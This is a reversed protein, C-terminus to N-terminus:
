VLVLDVSLEEELDQVVNSLLGTNRRRSRQLLLLKILLEIPPFIHLINDLFLILLKHLPNADHQGRCEIVSIKTYVRDIDDAPGAAWREPWRM